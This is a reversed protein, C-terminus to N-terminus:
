RGAMEIGPKQQSQLVTWNLHGKCSVSKSKPRFHYVNLPDTRNWEDM